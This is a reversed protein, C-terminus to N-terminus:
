PREDSIEEAIEERERLESADVVEAGARGMLQDLDLEVVEGDDPCACLEEGATAAPPVSDLAAEHEEPEDELALDEDLLADVAEKIDQSYKELIEQEANKMAAEKLATADVIAQDLMSSM